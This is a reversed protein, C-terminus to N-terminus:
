RFKIIERARPPTGRPLCNGAPPSHDSLVVPPSAIKSYAKQILEAGERSGGAGARDAEARESSAAASADQRPTKTAIPTNLPRVL